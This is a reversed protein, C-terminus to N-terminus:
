AQFHHPCHHWLVLFLLFWTPVWVRHCAQEFFPSHLFHLLPSSWQSLRLQKLTAHSKWQILKLKQNTGEDRTMVMMQFVMFKNLFITLFQLSYPSKSLKRERFKEPSNFIINDNTVPKSGLSCLSSNLPFSLSSLSYKCMTPTLSLSLTSNNSSGAMLSIFSWARAVGQRVM